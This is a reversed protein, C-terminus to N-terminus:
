SQREDATRESKAVQQYNAFPVPDPCFYLLSL